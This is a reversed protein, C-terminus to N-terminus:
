VQDWFGGPNQAEGAEEQVESSTTDEALSSTEEAQGSPASTVLPPLIMGQQASLEPPTFNPGDQFPSKLDLGKFFQDILDRREQGEKNEIFLLVHSGGDYTCSM